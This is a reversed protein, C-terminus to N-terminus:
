RRRRGLGGARSLADLAQSLGKVSGLFEGELVGRGESLTLAIRGGLGPVKGPLRTAEAVDVSWWSLDFSGSVETQPTAWGGSVWHIGTNRIECKGSSLGKRGWGGTRARSQIDPFLERDTVLAPEMFSVYGRWYLGRSPTRGRGAFRAYSIPGGVVIVVGLFFGLISHLIVGLGIAIVAFVGLFLLVKRM